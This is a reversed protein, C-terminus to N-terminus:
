SFKNHHDNQFIYMSWIVYIYMNWIMVTYHNASPSKYLTIHWNCRLLISYFWRLSCTILTCSSFKSFYMVTLQPLVRWVNYWFWFGHLFLNISTTLNFITTQLVINPALNFHFAYIPTSRLNVGYVVSLSNIDKTNWINKGIVLFWYVTQDLKILFAPLDRFHFGLLSYIFVNLKM